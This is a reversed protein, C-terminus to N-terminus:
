KKFNSVLSNSIKKSNSQVSSLFNQKVEIIQNNDIIEGGFSAGEGFWCSEIVTDLSIDEVYDAGPLPYYNADSVKLMPSEEDRYYDSPFSLVDFM